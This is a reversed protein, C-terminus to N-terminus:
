DEKNIIHQLALITFLVQRDDETLHQKLYNHFEKYSLSKGILKEIIFKVAIATASCLLADTGDPESSNNLTGLITKAYENRGEGAKTAALLKLEMKDGKIKQLDLENLM